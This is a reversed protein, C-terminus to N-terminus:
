GTRTATTFCRRAACPILRAEPAAGWIPCLPDPTGAILGGMATGHGAGKSSFAMRGDASIPYDLNIVFQSRAWTAPDTRRALEASIAHDDGRWFTPHTVDVPMDVLGITVGAGGTEINKAKASIGMRELSWQEVPRPPAPAKRRDAVAGHGLYPSPGPDYSQVEGIAQVFLEDYVERLQSFAAKAIIAGCASDSAYHVGAWERNEAIRQAVDFSEAIVGPDHGFIEAMGHAILYAQTAHGSPYASHNPVTVSPNIGHDV